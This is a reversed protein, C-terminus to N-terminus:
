EFPIAIVEITWASAMVVISGTRYEAPEDRMRSRVPGIMSDPPASPRTPRESQSITDRGPSKRRVCTRGRQACRVVIMRAMCVSSVLSRKRSPRLKKVNKWRPRTDWGSGSLPWGEAMSILRLTVRRNASFILPMGAPEIM